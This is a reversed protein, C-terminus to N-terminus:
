QPKQINELYKSRFKNLLENNQLEERSLDEFSAQKENGIENGTKEDKSEEGDEDKNDVIGLKKGVWTFKAIIEEQMLDFCMALTAM